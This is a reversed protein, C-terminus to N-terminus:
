ALLSGLSELAYSVLSRANEPRSSEAYIRLEPANSSPRVYSIDGNVMIARIGDTSDRSVVTIKKSEVLDLCNQDERLGDLVLQTISSANLTILRVSATFRQPLDNLLCSVKTARRQSEKLIVGIRLIAERTKLTELKCLESHLTTGLIFGGNAEYDMGTHGPFEEAVLDIGKIVYPSGIKNRKVQLFDGCLDVGTNCSVPTVVVDTRLAQACLLGVNDGRLWCGNEDTILPRDGDGDAAILSDFKHEGAWELAIESVHPTVAETDVPTFDDTRGLAITEAGLGELIEVL